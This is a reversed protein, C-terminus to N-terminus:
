RIGEFHSTKRHRRLNFHFSVYKLNFIEFALDSYCSVERRGEAFQLDELIFYERILLLFSAKKTPPFHLHTTLCDISINGNAQFGMLSM